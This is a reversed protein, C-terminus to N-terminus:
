MLRPVSANRGNTNATAPTQVAVDAACLAPVVCAVAGATVGAEDTVASAVDPGVDRQRVGGTDFM